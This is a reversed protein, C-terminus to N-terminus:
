FSAAVGVTWGGSRQAVTLQRDESRGTVLLGVGVASAVGGAILAVISRLEAREGRRELDPRWPAHDAARRRLEESAARAALGEYAAYGLAGAGLTIAGWGVARRAISARPRPALEVLARTALPRESDDAAARSLFLRYYAAAREADGARRYTSGINFLLRPQPDLRYAQEFAQRAHAWAGTDFADLGREYARQYTQEADDDIPEAHAACPWAVILWSLIAAIAATRPRTRQSTSPASMRDVSGSRSPEIM